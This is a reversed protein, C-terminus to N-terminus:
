TKISVFLLRTELSCETMTPMASGSVEIYRVEIYFHGRYLSRYGEGRYQYFVHFLNVIFRFKAFHM